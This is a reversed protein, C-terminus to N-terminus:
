QEAFFRIQDLYVNNVTRGSAYWNWIVRGDSYVIIEVEQKGVGSIYSKPISFTHRGASRYGAPLTMILTGGSSSRQATGKLIVMGSSLKRYYVPRDGGYSSWGPGFNPTTWDSDGSPWSSKCNTGICVQSCTGSADCRTDTDTDTLQGTPCTITNGSITCQTNTNTDTLQGTPCTITNGSITCQTNTDTDVVASVCSWAGASTQLIQGNSCPEIDELDHGIGSPGVYAYVGVGIIALIGIAIITYLWRNSFNIIVKM